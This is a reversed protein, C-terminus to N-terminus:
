KLVRGTEKVPVGCVYVQITEDRAEVEAKTRLHTLSGNTLKLCPPLPTHVDDHGSPSATM